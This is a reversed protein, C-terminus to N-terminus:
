NGGNWKQKKKRNQNSIPGKPQDEIKEFINKGIKWKSFIDTKQSMVAVKNEWNQLQIKHKKEYNKM